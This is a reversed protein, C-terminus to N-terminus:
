TGFMQSFILNLAADYKLTTSFWSRSLRRRFLGDFLVIQSALEANTKYLMLRFVIIDWWIRRCITQYSFLLIMMLFRQRHQHTYPRTKKRYGSLSYFHNHKFCKYICSHLIWTDQVTCWKGDRSLHCYHNLQHVGYKKDAIFNM